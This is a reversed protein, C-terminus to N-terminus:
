KCQKARIRLEEKMYKETRSQVEDTPMASTLANEISLSVLTSGPSLIQPCICHFHPSAPAKERSHVKIELEQDAEMKGKRDQSKERVQLKFDIRQALSMLHPWLLTPICMHSHAAAASCREEQQGNTFGTLLNLKNNPNKKLAANNTNAKM